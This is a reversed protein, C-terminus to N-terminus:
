GRKIRKLASESPRLLLSSRFLPLRRFNMSSIQKTLPFMHVHRQITELIIKRLSETSIRHGSCTKSFRQRSLNYTSCCYYDEPKAIRQRREGNAVYYTKVRNNRHRHNYMPAGCDACYVLGTLVNPEGM